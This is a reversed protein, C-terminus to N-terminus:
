KKFFQQVGAIIGIVAALGGILAIIDEVVKRDPYLFYAAAMATAIVVSLVLLVTRGSIRSRKVVPGSKELAPAFEPFTEKTAEFLANMRDQALVEGNEIRKLQKPTVIARRSKLAPDISKLFETESLKLKTRAKKINM